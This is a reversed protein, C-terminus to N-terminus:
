KKPVNMLMETLRSIEAENICGFVEQLGSLAQILFHAFEHLRQPISGESPGDRASLVNGAADEEAYDVLARPTTHAAASVIRCMSDYIHECGIDTAYKYSNFAQIKEGEVRAKLDTRHKESIGENAPKFLDTSHKRDANILKLRNAEDSKFFETVFKENSCVNGFVFYADLFTRFLSDAETSMGHQMVVYAAEAIELLRVALILSIVKQKDAVSEQSVVERSSAFCRFSGITELLADFGAQNSSTLEAAVAQGVPSLYGSGIIKM